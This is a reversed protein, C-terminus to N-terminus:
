ETIYRREYNNQEIGLGCDRGNILDQQYPKLNFYSLCRRWYVHCGQLTNQTFPLTLLSTAGRPGPQWYVGLHCHSSTVLASPAGTMVETVCNKRVQSFSRRSRPSAPYIRPHFCAIWMRKTMKSLGDKCFESTYGWLIECSEGKM